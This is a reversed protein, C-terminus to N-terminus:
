LIDVESLNIQNIQLFLQETKNLLGESNLGCLLVSCIGHHMLVCHVKHTTM